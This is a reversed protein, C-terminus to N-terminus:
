YNDGSRSNLSVGAFASREKGRECEALQVTLPPGLSYIVPNM